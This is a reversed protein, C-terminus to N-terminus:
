IRQLRAAHRAGAHRRDRDAKHGHHRHSRSTIPRGLIAGERRDIGSLAPHTRLRDRSPFPRCRPDGVTVAM